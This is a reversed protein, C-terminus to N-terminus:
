FPMATVVFCCRNCTGQMDNCNVLVDTILLNSTLLRQVASRVGMDAATTRKEGNMESRPSHDVTPRIHRMGRPSRGRVLVVPVRGVMAVPVVARAHDAEVHAGVAVETLAVHDAVVERTRGVPCPKCLDYWLTM